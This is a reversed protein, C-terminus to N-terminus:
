KGSRDAYEADTEDDTKSAKVAKAHADIRAMSVAEIRATDVDADDGLGDIFDLVSALCAAGHDRCAEALGARDDCAFFAQWQGDAMNVAANYTPKAAKGDALKKASSEPKVPCVMDPTRMWLGGKDTHKVNTTDQLVAKIKDKLSQKVFANFQELSITKALLLSGANDETIKLAM